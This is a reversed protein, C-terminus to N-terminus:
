YLKKGNSHTSAYCYDVYHGDSGCRYCCNKNSKKSSKKNTKKCYLNQHCTLGKLTDYEKNCYDCYFIEIVDYEDSSSLDDLYDGDM